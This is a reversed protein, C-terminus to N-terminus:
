FVLPKRHASPYRVSSVASSIRKSSPPLGRCGYFVIAYSCFIVSAYDMSHANKVTSRDSLSNFPVLPPLCAARAM